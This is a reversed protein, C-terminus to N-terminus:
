SARKNCNWYPPDLVDCAGTLLAELSQEATNNLFRFNVYDVRPLGESSRFYAPNKALTIHDGAVWEQVLYPGWGVPKEKAMPDNAISVFDKGSFIHEPQPIWFHTMYQQDRFGSVARWETTSEDIASYMATKKILDKNGPYAADGALRYSFVSDSAKLPTGDSWTIGPKIKYTVVLQDMQVDGSGPYEEACEGSNCGSPLYQVGKEM